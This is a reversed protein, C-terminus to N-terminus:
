STLIHSIFYFFNKRRHNQQTKNKGREGVGGSVIKINVFIRRFAGLIAAHAIGPFGDARREVVDMVM